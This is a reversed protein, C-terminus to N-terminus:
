RTASVLAAVDRRLAALHEVQARSRPELKQVRKAFDFTRQRLNPGGAVVVAELTRAEEALERLEEDQADAAQAELDLGRQLKASTEGIRGDTVCGTLLFAGCALLLLLVGALEGWTLWPLKAAAVELDEGDPEFRASM